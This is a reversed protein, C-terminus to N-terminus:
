AAKSRRQLAEPPRRQSEPIRFHALARRYNDAWASPAAIALRRMVLDPLKEPCQPVTGDQVEVPPTPYSFRVEPGRRTGACPGKSAAARLREPRAFLAPDHESMLFLADDLHADLGEPNFRYLVDVAGSGVILADYLAPAGESEPREGLLVGVRKLEGAEGKAEILFDLRFCNYPTLAVQNGRLGCSPQLARVFQQSLCDALARITEGRGTVYPPDYFLADERHQASRRSPLHAAAERPSVDPSPTRGPQKPPGEPRHSPAARRARRTEEGQDDHRPRKQATYFTSERTM